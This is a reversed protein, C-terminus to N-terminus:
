KRVMLIRYVLSNYVKGPKGLYYNGNSDRELHIDWDSGLLYGLRGMYEVLINSSFKFSEILEFSNRGIYDSLGLKHVMVFPYNGSSIKDESFGPRWSFKVEYGDDQLDLFIDKIDDRIDLDVERYDVKKLHKETYEKEWNIKSEKLDGLEYYVQVMSVYKGESSFIDSNIGRYDHDIFYYSHTYVFGVELNIFYNLNSFDELIDSSIYVPDVHGHMDPYGKPIIQMCLKDVSKEGRWGSNESTILLFRIDYSNIFDPLFDKVDEIYDSMLESGLKLSDGGGKSENFSKLYRM